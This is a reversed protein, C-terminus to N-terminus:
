CTREQLLLPARCLGSQSSCTSDNAPLRGLGPGWGLPRHTCFGWGLRGGRQPGQPPRPYDRCWSGAGAWCRRQGRGAWARHHGEITSLTQASRVQPYSLLLPSSVETRPPTAVPKLRDQM